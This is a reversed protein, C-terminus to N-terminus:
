DLRFIYEERRRADGVAFQEFANTIVAIVNGGISEHHAAQRTGDAANSGCM